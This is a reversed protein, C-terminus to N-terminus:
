PAVPRKFIALLQIATPLEKDAVSAVSVLEWGSGGMENLTEHFLERTELFTKEDYPSFDVHGYETRYEWNM